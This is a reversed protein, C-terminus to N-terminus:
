EKTTSIKYYDILLNASDKKRRIDPQHIEFAWNWLLDALKGEDIPM